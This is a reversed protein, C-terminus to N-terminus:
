QYKKLEAKQSNNIDDSLLMFQIAKKWFDEKANVKNSRIAGLLFAADEELQDSYNVIWPVNDQVSFRLFRIEANQPAKSIAKELLAKGQNFYSLKDYPGDVLEAYMAIAVGKYALQVADNEDAKQVLQYFNNKGQTTQSSFYSTRLQPVPVGAKVLYTFSLSCIFLLFVPRM